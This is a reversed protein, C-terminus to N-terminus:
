GNEEEKNIVPLAFRFVAGFHAKSHVEIFGGHDEIIKHAIALGMGSGKPKTTFYPEFIKGKDEESIGPGTDAVEIELYESFSKDLYRALSVNISMLGKGQLASLSNELLIHFVMEIQRPDAWVPKVDEEILIQIDQEDSLYPRYKGAAEEIINKIDFAQFHPKELNSFKLFNRTMAQINDLETRMMQIDDSVERRESEALAIKELRMQLTKLNLSVTSLPTKIDHAMKQVARSWSQIKDSTSSSVATKLQILYSFGSKTPFRFPEIDIEVERPPYKERLDFKQSIPLGNQLSVQIVDAMEPYGSLYAFLLDDKTPAHPMDLIHHVQGNTHLIKGQSNVILIGASSDYLTHKFFQFYINGTMLIKHAGSLLFFVMAVFAAFILPFLSYLPNKSLGLRYFDRGAQLAIELPKHPGCERFSVRPWRDTIAFRTLLDLESDFVSFYRESVCFLEEKGDANLDRLYLPRIFEFPTSVREVAEFRHNLKVLGNKGQWGFLEFPNKHHSVLLKYELSEHFPNPTRSHIKGQPNILYMTRSLNKEGLYDPVALLYRETYIEVPLCTFESPYESFSLPPFIPELKQDLVFLWCKDDRYTGSSPANGYAM